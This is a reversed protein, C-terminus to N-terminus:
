QRRTIKTGKKVKSNSIPYLFANNQTFYIYRLHTLLSTFITEDTRDKSLGKKNVKLERNNDPNM